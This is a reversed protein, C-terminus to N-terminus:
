CDMFKFKKNCQRRCGPWFTYAAFKFFSSGTFVSHLPAHLAGTAPHGHSLWRAFLSFIHQGIARLPAFIKDKKRSRSCYCLLPVPLSCRVYSISNILLTRLWQSTGRHRRLPQRVCFFYKNMELIWKSENKEETLHEFQISASWRM